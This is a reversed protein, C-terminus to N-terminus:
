THNEEHTKLVWLKPKLDAPLYLPHCPHGDKSLKLYHLSRNAKEKILQKVEVDRDKFTGNLGWAAITVQSKQVAQLIHWDNLARLKPESEPHEIRRLKTPETSRYAFLNVVVIGGAGWFRAYTMCKKISNDNISADAKSPNVMLFTVPAKQSDWTRTLLYRYRGCESLIASSITKEFFGNM